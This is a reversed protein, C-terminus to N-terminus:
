ALVGDLAHIVGNTAPINSTVMQADNVKIKGASTKQLVVTKGTYLSDKVQYFRMGASFLAGPVIHKMAFQEAAEKDTYLKELTDSDLESFSKDVPAFVTYTKVGKSQLKESLGSTYLIKLFNSFRGERDSQLTQLLDGVPLPFMVRDVAHAVGQPIKIDKKNLVVMAGNITTLTVDNWEQDHMNYQNVRLQTGALSVGTMEDQLTAIEFSGPIVHHLLLGSLLRPNSRFKEEAREPGGLQVLLNKFAKDTPVFITYPGTENLISDLGSQRLYKAMAFLGNSKLIQLLDESPNSLVSSSAAAKETNETEQVLADAYQAPTQAVIETQTQAIDALRETVVPLHTSAGAIYHSSQTVPLSSFIPAPTTRVLSASISASSSSSEYLGPFRPTYPTYTTSPISTTSPTTSTTSSLRSPHYQRHNSPTGRSIFPTPTTTTTLRATTTTSPTTTTTTTSTTTAPARTTTTQIIKGSKIEVVEDNPLTLRYVSPPLKIEGSRIRELISEVEAGTQKTEKEGNAKVGQIKFSGDAQEELYVYTAKKKPPLTPPAPTTKPSLGEIEYGDPILGRKALEELTPPDDSDSTIVASSAISNAGNSVGQIDGAGGGYLAALSSLDVGGPLGGAPLADSEQPDPSRLIQVKGGGPLVLDKSKTPAVDSLSLKGAGGLAQQALLTQLQEQSYAQQGQVLNPDTTRIVQVRQGNPLVLDMEDYTKNGTLPQQPAESLAAKLQKLLDDRAITKVPKKGVLKPSSNYKGLESKVQAYINKKPTTSAETTTTTTSTTTTTTTTPHEKYYQQLASNFQNYETPHAVPRGRPAQVYQQQIPYNNNHQTIITPLVHQKIAHQKALFEEHQQRVKHQSKEYQKAVFQEHKQIIKQKYEQDAQQAQPANNIFQHQQQQQSYLPQQQQQLQQQQQFTERSPQVPFPTSQLNNFLPPVPLGLQPTLQYQQQQQQQQQQPQQQYSFQQQQQQQQPQALTQFTPVPLQSPLKQTTQQGFQQPQQYAFQQQQQQQAQPQQLQQQQYVPAPFATSQLSTSPFQKHRQQQQQQQQQSGAFNRLDLFNQHHLDLNSGASPLQQQQQPFQPATQLQNQTSRQFQQNSHPQQQQQQQQQQVQQKQQHPFQAFRHQQQQQQHHHPQHSQQHGHHQRQQQHQQPPIPLEVGAQIFNQQNYQPLNLQRRHANHFPPANHLAANPPIFGQAHTSVAWLCLTGWLALLLRM